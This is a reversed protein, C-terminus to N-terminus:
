NLLFTLGVNIEGNLIDTTKADETDDADSSATTMSVVPTSVTILTRDNLSRQVGANVNIVTTKIEVEPAEDTVKTQSFSLGALLTNKKDLSHKYNGALTFGMTKDDNDKTYAQATRSQNSLLVQANFMSEELSVGFSAGPVITLM